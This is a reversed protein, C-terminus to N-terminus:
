IISLVEDLVWVNEERRQPGGKLVLVVAEPHIHMGADRPVIATFAPVPGHLSCPLGALSAIINWAADRANRVGARRPGLPVGGVARAFDYTEADQMYAFGKGGWLTASMFSAACLSDVIGMLAHISRVGQATSALKDFDVDRLIPVDEKALEQVRKAKSAVTKSDADDDLPMAGQVAAWKRGQLLRQSCAAFAKAKSDKIQPRATRYHIEDCGLATACARGNVLNAGYEPPWLLVVVYDGPAVAIPGAEVLVEPPVGLWQM